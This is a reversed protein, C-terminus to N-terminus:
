RRATAGSAPRCTIPLKDAIWRCTIPLPQTARFNNQDRRRANAAARFLRDAVQQQQQPDRDVLFSLVVNTDLVIQKMGRGHRALLSGEPCGRRNLGGWRPHDRAAPPFRSRRHERARLWGGSGVALRGPARRWNRGCKKPSRRKTSSRSRRSPWVSRRVADYLPYPSRDLVVRRDVGAVSRM